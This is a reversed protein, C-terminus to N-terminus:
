EETPASRRARRSNTKPTEAVPDPAPVGSATGDGPPNARARPAREVDGAALRRRWFTDLEVPEGDAALPRRTVPDRVMRGPAPKLVITTL